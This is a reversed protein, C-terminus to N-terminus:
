IFIVGDGALLVRLIELRAKMLKLWTTHEMKDNYNEFVVQSNYPPDIYICKVKGAYEPELTKLAPLNNGHILLNGTNQDGYSREQDYLLVGPKVDIADDKGTWSLVIRQDGHSKM